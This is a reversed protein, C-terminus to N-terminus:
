GKAARQEAAYRKRLKKSWREILPKFPKFVKARWGGNRERWVEFYKEMYSRVAKEYQNKKVGHSLTLHYHQAQLSHVLGILNIKYNLRAALKQFFGKSSPLLVGLAIEFFPQETGQRPHYMGPLDSANPIHIRQQQPAIFDVLVIRQLGRMHERPIVDLASNIITETKAPCKLTAKNDIKIAM